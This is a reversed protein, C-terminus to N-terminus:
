SHRRSYLIYVNKEARGKGSTEQSTEIYYIPAAYEAQVAAAATGLEAM